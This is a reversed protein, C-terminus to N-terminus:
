KGERRFPAQLGREAAQRAVPEEATVLAQRYHQLALERSQEMDLIRGLYIHSWALLRPSKSIDLAQQFYNKALEPQKEQSAVLALGYVAHDRL